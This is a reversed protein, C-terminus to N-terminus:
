VFCCNSSIEPTSLTQEASSSWLFSFAAESQKRRFRCVCLCGTEASKHIKYLKFSVSKYHLWTWNTSQVSTSTNQFRLFIQSCFYHTSRKAIQQCEHTPASVSKVLVRLFVTVISSDLGKEKGEMKRLSIFLIFNSVTM